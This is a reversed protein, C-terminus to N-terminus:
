AARGKSRKMVRADARQQLGAQMLEHLRHVQDHYTRKGLIKVRRMQQEVTPMPDTLYRVGALKVLQTMNGFPPTGTREALRWAKELSADQLLGLRKMEALVADVEMAAHDMATWVLGDSKGSRPPAGGWEIVAGLSCRMGGVQCRGRMQEGWHQLLVEVEEIM